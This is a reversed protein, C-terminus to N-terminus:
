VQVGQFRTLKQPKHVPDPSPYPVPRSSGRSDSPIGGRKRASDAARKSLVDVRAPNYELYDHVQFGDPIRDWLGANVLENGVRANGFERAKKEPILGDTLYRACYCLGEIYAWKAPVSLAVTKPHDPFGDDLKVWSM